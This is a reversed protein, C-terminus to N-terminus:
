THSSEAIRDIAGKIDALHRDLLLRAEEDSIKAAEEISSIFSRSFMEIIDPITIGGKRIEASMTERMANVLRTIGENM